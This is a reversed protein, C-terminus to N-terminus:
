EYRTLIKVKAELPLGPAWEPTTSLCERFVASAREADAERVMATASDHTTFSIGVGAADILLVGHGFVDRAMGQTINETLLPGHHRHKPGGRIVSALLDRDGRVEPNFYLMRRGSPLTYAVHSKGAAEMFIGALKDWFGTVKPNSRRYAFVERKAEDFGIDLGALVRAANVFAAPGAGYGLGLVRAKALKYRRPDEIDLAGGTWGMTARAHAEYVSVGSRVVALFDEDGAMWALCRPEIQRLDGDVIVYGPLPVMMPRLSVGFVPEKNLGQWNVGRTGSWRGTNDTGYYRLYTPVTGDARVRMLLTEVIKLMKNASRWRGVAAIWPLAPGHDGLFRSFDEDDQATSAPPELGVRRCERVFCKGSTPPDTRAWPIDCAAEFCVRRLVAAGDQAMQVDLGIGRDAGERTVRSLEREHQPWRHLHKQALAMALRADGLCYANAEAMRQDGFLNLQM